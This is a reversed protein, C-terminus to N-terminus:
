ATAFHRVPLTQFDLGSRRTLLCTGDSSNTSLVHKAVAQYAKVAVGDPHGYESDIGASILVTNPNILLLSRANVGNRSGHHPASLVDSALFPGFSKNIGDWRDTETDGTVLYRFGTSDLGTLKLVISSNNSSDMDGIHPSFLEFTFYRTLNQLFRAETRDVRVSVRRLPSMSNKRLAVHMDIKEFVAAAADTDKYYTPYMVWEPQQNTLISDVGAPSAHDDDLGTLILGRVRSKSLYSELSMEIQERTVTDCDPMHADVIVAEDGARIATLDGQGAYLTFVDM